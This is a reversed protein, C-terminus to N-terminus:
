FGRKENCPCLLQESVASIPNHGARAERNEHGEQTGHVDDVKSSDGQVVSVAQTGPSAVPGEHGHLRGGGALLITQIQHAM